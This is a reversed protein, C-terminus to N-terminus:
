KKKKKDQKESDNKSNLKSNSDASEASATAKEANEKEATEKELQENHALVQEEQEKTIRIVRQEPAPTWEVNFRWKPDVNEEEQPDYVEYKARKGSNLLVTNTTDEKEVARQFTQVHFSRQKM